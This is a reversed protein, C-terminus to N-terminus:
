PRCSVAPQCPETAAGRRATVVTAGMGNGFFFRLAFSVMASSMCGWQHYKASGAQDSSNLM